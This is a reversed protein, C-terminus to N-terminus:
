PEKYFLSDSVSVGLNSSGCSSLGLIMVQALIKIATKM